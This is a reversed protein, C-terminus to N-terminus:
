WYCPGSPIHRNHARARLLGPLKCNANKSALWRPFVGVGRSLCLGHPLARSSLVGHPSFPGRPLVDLCWVHSHLRWKPTGLGGVGGGDSQLYVVSVLVSWCFFWGTSGRRSLTVHSPLTFPHKAVRLRPTAWTKPNWLLPYVM